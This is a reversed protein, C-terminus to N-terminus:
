VPSMQFLSMPRLMSERDFFFFELFSWRNQLFLLVCVCFCSSRCDYNNTLVSLFQYVTPRHMDSDSRNRQGKSICKGKVFLLDGMCYVTYNINFITIGFHICKSYKPSAIKTNTYSQQFALCRTEEIEVGELPYHFGGHVKM